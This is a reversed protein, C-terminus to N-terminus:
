WLERLRRFPYQFLPLTWAAFDVVLFFPLLVFTYRPLPVRLWLSAIRSYRMRSFFAYLFVATWFAGAAAVVWEPTRRASGILLLPVTLMSLGIFSTALCAAAERYAGFQLGHIVVNRLWRGQQRLYKWYNTQFRVPFSADSDYRIRFGARAFRKGLEYDGGARVGSAFGGAKELAERRVAANMGVLSAGYRPQHISTYIWTACQSMAFSDGMQGRFPVCPISTVAHEAGSLLPYVTRVFATETILCDADTLYLIEGSASGFCRKLAGQKGDQPQQELVIVRRDNFKQTIQRTGDSGGACVVVELAPYTLALISELCAALSGEENWAAILFSIRVTGAKELDEVTVKIRASELQQVRELDRRWRFVNLVLPFAIATLFLPWFLLL